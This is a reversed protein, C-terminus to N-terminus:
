FESSDTKAFGLDNLTKEAHTKELYYLSAEEVWMKLVTSYYRDSDTLIQGGEFVVVKKSNQGTEGPVTGEAYLKYKKGLGKLLNGLLTKNVTFDDSMLSIGIEVLCSNAFKTTFTRAKGLLKYCESGSREGKNDYRSLNKCNETLIKTVKDIKMGFKLDKYGKIKGTDQTIKKCLNSTNPPYLQIMSPRGSQNTEKSTMIIKSTESWRMTDYSGKTGHTWKGTISEWNDNTKFQILGWDKPQQFPESWKVIIEDMNSSLMEIKGKADGYIYSGVFNYSSADKGTSGEKRNFTFTTKVPGEGGTWFMKGKYETTQAYVNSIGFLIITILMLINKKYM